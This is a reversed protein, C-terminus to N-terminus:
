RRRKLVRKAEARVAKVNDVATTGSPLSEQIKKWDPVEAEISRSVADIKVQRLAEGADALGQRREILRRLRAGRARQSLALTEANEAESVHQFQLWRLRLASEEAESLRRNLNRRAEQDDAIARQVATRVGDFEEFQRLEAEVVSSNLQISGVENRLAARVGVLQNELRVAAVSGEVRERGGSVSHDTARDLDTLLQSAAAARSREVAAYADLFDATAFYMAAQAAPGSTAAERRAEDLGAAKQELTALVGSPTEAVAASALLAVAILRTFPNM